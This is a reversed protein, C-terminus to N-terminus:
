ILVLLKEFMSICFETDCLLMIHNQIHIMMGQFNVQLM